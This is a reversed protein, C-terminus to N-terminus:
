KEGTVPSNKKLEIINTTNTLTFSSAETNTLKLPATLAKTYNSEWKNKEEDCMMRTMGIPSFSITDGEKKISSFYSNCAAKGNVKMTSDINLTIMLEKPVPQNNIKVVKWSGEIQFAKTSSNKTNTCASLIAILLSIKIINKM